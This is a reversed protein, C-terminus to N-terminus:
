ILEDYINNLHEISRRRELIHYRIINRKQGWRINMVDISSSRCDPASINDGMSEEFQKIHCKFLTVINLVSPFIKVM